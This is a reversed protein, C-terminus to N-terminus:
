SIMKKLNLAANYLANKNYNKLALSNIAEKSNLNNNIMEDVLLAELSKLESSDEQAKVEEINVLVTYEGKEAKEDELIANYVETITGHFSKEFLKTIDSFVACEFGHYVDQMLQLLSKIRHPSEYFIATHARNPVSKLFRVIENKKRPPFGYFAFETNTFGSMSLAAVAASAGPLAYVPINKQIALRVLVAGPDSVAPTGADSVLAVSLEKELMSDILEEGRSKENFKHYSVLKTRIDFHNLLKQTQRTDEAAIIDANKLTELARLTIDGLNGIPTAVVYLVSM